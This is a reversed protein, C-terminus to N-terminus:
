DFPNEVPAPYLSTMLEGVFAERGHSMGQPAFGYGDFKLILASLIYMGANYHRQDVHHSFWLLHDGAEAVPADAFEQLRANLAEPDTIMEMGFDPDLAAGDLAVPM